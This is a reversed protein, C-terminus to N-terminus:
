LERFSSFFLAIFQREASSAKHVCLTVSTLMDSGHNGVTFPLKPQIKTLKLLGKLMLWTVDNTLITRKM